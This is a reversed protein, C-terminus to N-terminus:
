SRARIWPVLGGARVIERPLDALPASPYDVGEIRIVGSDIDVEVEAGQKIALVADPNVFAPM